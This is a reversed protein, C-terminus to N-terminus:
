CNILSSINTDLWDGDLIDSVESYGYDPFEFHSSSCSSGTEQSALDSLETINLSRLEEAWTSPLQLAETLADLDALSNDVLGPTCGVDHISAPKTLEGLVIKKGMVDDYLSINASEPSAPEDESPSGPVKGSSKFQSSQRPDQKVPRFSEKFNKDITLKLKLRNHNVNSFVVPTTILQGNQQIRPQKVSKTGKKDCSLKHKTHSKKGPQVTTSKAKKRPRYKYDPYEQLHLIRLREAEQIFPQREKETLLKWRKGLQKSIEANHLEPQQECIKRREIQSWVMFANMPRKIHNAPKKCQTADTYPTSSNTDVMMSGFVPSSQHFHPEQKGASSTLKESTNTSM